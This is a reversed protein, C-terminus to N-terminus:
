TRRGRSEASEAEPPELQGEPDLADARRLPPFLWAWLVVIGITGLGGLIVAPVTGFWQATIGSEFQGVENSAGIFVMNVASVRGRMRDPTRLQVLTHRVIVSVMDCAGVVLLALMSLALNRSLGFIVTAVGFGAVCCLMTAGVHRRLPWHAVVIATTVAGIGPSGRLLGLGSAGIHLIERAYVPLLAVAGGLLVAFLDLSIAGLILRNGAIYELGGLIDRWSASRPVQPAAVRIASVSLLAGCAALAATAYVPIASGAAGYILGGLMPGAIMAAQAISSGWAVANPFHEAPVLLPMFAQNAPGNFARVTGNLLLVAYIPYVSAAGHLTIALLMLSCCGFAVYCCQLIRRRPFRDAAQGALLFLLIGPLFQALGVLGLDLPRHTIGYVQWAVALAQMESCTTALVRATMFYRFNPYRFAVRGAQSAGPSTKLPSTPGSV